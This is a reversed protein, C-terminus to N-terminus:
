HPLTDCAGLHRELLPRLRAVECIEQKDLLGVAVGALIDRYRVPLKGASCLYVATQVLEVRGQLARLFDVGTMEPMYFDVVLLRPLSQELHDLATDADAFFRAPYGSKRAMWAVIERTLRDDDVLIFENAVIVDSWRAVGTM